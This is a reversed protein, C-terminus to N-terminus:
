IPNISATTAEPHHTILSVASSTSNVSQMPKPVAGSRVCLTMLLLMQAGILVPLNSPRPVVEAGIRRGESLTISRVHNM